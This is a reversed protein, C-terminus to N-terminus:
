SLTKEEYGEPPSQQMFSIVCGRAVTIEGSVPSSDGSIIRLFTSKGTGNRGILAVRENEHISFAADKFLTQFGISDNLQEVSWLVKDAM